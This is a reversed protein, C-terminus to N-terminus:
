EDGSDPAEARVSESGVSGAGPRWTLGVKLQASAGAAVLVASTKGTLEVGFEVTIEAPLVVLGQLQSLVGRAVTGITGLAREFTRDAQDITQQSLGGRMTPGASRQDTVQVLITGGTEVPFEILAVSTEGSAPYM